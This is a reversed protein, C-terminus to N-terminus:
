RAAPLTPPSAGIPAWASSATSCAMTSPSACTPATPSPSTTSTRQRAPRRSRHSRGPLHHQGRARDYERGPRAQIYDWPAFVTQALNKGYTIGNDFATQVFRHPYGTADPSGLDTFRTSTSANPTIGLTGVIMKAFQARKVPNNLGFPGSPGSYGSIIGLSSLDDIAGAYPHDVPVDSFALAPSAFALLLIIALVVAGVITLRLRRGARGRKGSHRTALDAALHRDPMDEGGQKDNRPTAERGSRPRSSAKGHSYAPNRSLALGRTRGATRETQGSQTGWRIAGHQCADAGPRKYISRPPSM